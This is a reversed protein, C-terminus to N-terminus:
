CWKDPEIFRHIWRLTNGNDFWRESPFDPHAKVFLPELAEAIAHYPALSDDPRNHDGGVPRPGAMLVVAHKREDIAVYPVKALGALSARMAPGVAFQTGVLTLWNLGKIAERMLPLTGPLDEVDVGWFRRAQAYIADFADEALWPDYGFVLGAHGSYLEVNDAVRRAATVLIEFDTKLPMLIRVFAHLGSTQRHIRGCRFSWCSDPDDIDRGDWFQVDFARGERVRRRITELYPRRVGAAAAARGSATLRPTTVRVWWPSESVQYRAMGGPPCLSEYFDVLFALERESPGALYVTLDLVVRSAVHGSVVVPTSLRPALNLASM